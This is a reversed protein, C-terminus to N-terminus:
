GGYCVSDTVWESFVIVMAQRGARVGPLVMHIPNQSPHSFSRYFVGSIFNYLNITGDESASALVNLEKSM